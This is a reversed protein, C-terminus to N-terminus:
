MPTPVNTVHSTADDERIWRSVARTAMDHNVTFDEGSKSSGPSAQRAWIAWMTRAQAYECLVRQLILNARRVLAHHLRVRQQRPSGVVPVVGQDVVWRGRGDEHHLVGALRVRGVEDVEV